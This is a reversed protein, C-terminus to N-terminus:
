YLYTNYPSLFLKITTVNLYVLPYVIKVRYDTNMTRIIKQPTIPEEIESFPITSFFNTERTRLIARVHEVKDIQDMKCSLVFPADQM